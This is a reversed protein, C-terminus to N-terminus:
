GYWLDYHNFVFIRVMKGKKSGVYKLFVSVMHVEPDLKYVVLSDKQFKM